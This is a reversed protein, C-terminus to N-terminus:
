QKKFVHLFKQGVSNYYINKTGKEVCIIGASVFDNLDKKKEFDYLPKAYQLMTIYKKLAPDIKECVMVGVVNLHKTYFISVIYSIFEFYELVDSKTIENFNKLYFCVSVRNYIKTDPNESNMMVADIKVNNIIKGQFVNYDKLNEKISKLYELM